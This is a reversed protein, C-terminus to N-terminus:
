IKKIQIIVVVVFILSRRTRFICQEDDAELMQSILNLIM